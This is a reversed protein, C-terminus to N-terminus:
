DVVNAIRDNQGRPVIQDVIQVLMIIKAVGNQADSDSTRLNDLVLPFKFEAGDGSGDQFYQSYLASTYYRGQSQNSAIQYRTYIFSSSLSM